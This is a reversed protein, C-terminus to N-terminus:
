QARLYQAFDGDVYHPMKRAANIYTFNLGRGRDERLDDLADHPRAHVDARLVADGNLELRSRRRLSARMGWSWRLRLSSVRAPLRTGNSVRTATSFSAHVAEGVLAGQPRDPIAM